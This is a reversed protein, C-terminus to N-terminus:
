DIRLSPDLMDRVQDGVINISLLTAGLVVGPLVGVWWNTQLYGRATELMSGWEPVPPQAGLGLFSLSAGILIATGYGLTALVFVVHQVNPLIHRRMVRAGSAGMSHAAEIYQNGKISLTAGRVVRSFAPTQGVGIAIMANTLGPGLLTVVILALLIGPFAMLVDIARMVVADFTGAYFGSTVGVVTGLSVSIATALVAYGLSTRAGYAVRSLIDRGFEDTGFPHVATPGTLVVAPNMEVPDYRAAVRPALAVLAVFALFAFAAASPVAARRRAHRFMTRWPARGPTEPMSGDRVAATVRVPHASRAM